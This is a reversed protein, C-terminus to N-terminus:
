SLFLIHRSIELIWHNKIVYVTRTEDSFLPSSALYPAYFLFPILSAFRLVCSFIDVWESSFIYILNILTVHSFKQIQYLEWKCFSKKKFQHAWRNTNWKVFLKEVLSKICIFPYTIPIFKCFLSYGCPILVLLFAFLICKIKAKFVFTACM